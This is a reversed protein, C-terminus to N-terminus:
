LFELREYIARDSKLIRATLVFTKSSSGDDMCDRPHHGIRSRGIVKRAGVATVHKFTPSHMELVTESQRCEGVCKRRHPSLTIAGSLHPVM